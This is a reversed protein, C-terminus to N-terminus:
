CRKFLSWGDTLRDTWLVMPLDMPQNQQKMKPLKMTSWLVACNKKWEFMLQHQQRKQWGMRKVQKQRQTRELLYLPPESIPSTTQIVDQSCLNLCWIKVCHTYVDQAFFHVYCLFSFPPFHMVMSGVSLGVLWGGIWSVFSPIYKIAGHLPSSIKM